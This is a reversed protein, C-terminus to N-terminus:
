KKRLDYIVTIFVQRSKYAVFVISSLVLWRAINWHYLQLVAFSCLLLCLLIKVFFKIDYMNRNGTEKAINSYFWYHFLMLILYSLMTTYGAVLYGKKPILYYNIAFNVIATVTSAIAAYGTKEYYIEVNFFLVYIFICFCGMMIPPMAYLVEHYSPPTAISLIEPALLMVILTLGGMFVTLLNSVIRLDNFNGDRIAKFTWPIFAGNIGTRLITMAMSIMYAINFIGAQAVGCFLSIMIRASHGLLVESVYHPILPIALKISWWWYERNYFCRGKKALSCFIIICILFQIGVTIGILATAKESTILLAIIGVIVSMISNLFTVYLLKQYKYYYRQLQSWYQLTPFMILHLFMMILLTDSFGTYEKVIGQFLYAILGLAFTTLVTLFQISSIYKFQEDEFRILAKNFVGAYINLSSFISLIYFWSFFVTYAGYEEASMLRTYIPMSIFQIGRQLVYCLTFWLSAKAAENISNYRNLLEKLTIM